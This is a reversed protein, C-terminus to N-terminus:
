ARGDRLQEYRAACAEYTPLLGTERAEALSPAQADKPSLIPAIHRPWAIGLEPDLPDVGHEREPAYGTSCLYIVTADDTLAMFAHGLGEALFAAHHDTDDLRLAEWRGFTPSGVRIDVVVDLVTGRVCTIYKAQGPPVDSFHLGRLVGRRSVS